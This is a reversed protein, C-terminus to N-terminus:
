MNFLTLTELAEKFQREAQIDFSRQKTLEEPKDNKESIIEEELDDDKLINDETTIREIIFLNLM